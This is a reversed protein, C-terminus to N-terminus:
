KIKIQCQKKNKKVVTVAVSVIGSFEVGGVRPIFVVSLLLNGRLRIAVRGDLFERSSSESLSNCMNVLYTNLAM